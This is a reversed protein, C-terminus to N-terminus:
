PYCMTLHLVTAEDTVNEYQHAETASFQISDFTNLTYSEDGITLEITGAMVTVIEMTGTHHSEPIYVTHPQVYARHMELKERVDSFMPELTWGPNDSDYRPGQGARSISVANEPKLLAMLPISLQKSIKWMMGITPNTEGREINGLTLKSVGTLAALEELSLKRDKRLKRLNCGVAQMLLKTEDEQFPKM